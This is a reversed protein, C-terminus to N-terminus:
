KCKSTKSASAPAPPPTGTPSSKKVTPDSPIGTIFYCSKDGCHSLKRANVSWLYWILLDSFHFLRDITLYWYGNCRDHKEARSNAAYWCCFQVCLICYDAKNIWTGIFSRLLRNDCFGFRSYFKKTTEPYLWACAICLHIIVRNECPHHSNFTKFTKFTIIAVESRECICVLIIDEDCSGSTILSIMDNRAKDIEKLRQEVKQIESQEMGALVSEVNAKRSHHWDNRQGNGCWINRKRNCWKLRWRNTATLRTIWHLM